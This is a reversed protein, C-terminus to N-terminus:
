DETRAILHMSRSAFAVRLPKGASLGAGAASRRTTLASIVAGCDVAVRVQTGWSVLSRVAIAGSSGESSGTPACSFRGPVKESPTAPTGVAVGGLEPVVSAGSTLGM